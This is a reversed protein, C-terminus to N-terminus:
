QQACVTRQIDFVEELGMEEFVAWMADEVGIIKLSGRRSDVMHQMELIMRIVSNSIYQVESMDIVVDRCMLAMSTLEDELDHTMEMTLRGRPAIQATGDSVTERITVREGSESQELILLDGEVKRSIGM